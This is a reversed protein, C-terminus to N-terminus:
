DVVRVERRIRDRRRRVADAGVLERIMEMDEHAELEFALQDTSRQDSGVDGLCPVREVRAVEAHDRGAIGLAAQLVDM